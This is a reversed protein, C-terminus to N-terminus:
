IKEQNERRALMKNLSEKGIVNEPKDEDDGADIVTDRNENAQDVANRETLEKRETKFTAGRHASTTIKWLAATRSKLIKFLDLGGDTLM